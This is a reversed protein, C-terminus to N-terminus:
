IKRRKRNRGDTFLSPRKINMILRAAFLVFIGFLIVLGIILRFKMLAIAGFYNWITLKIAIGLALLLTVLILWFTWNKMINAGKQRTKSLKKFPELIIIIVYKLCFTLLKPTIAKKKRLSCRTM